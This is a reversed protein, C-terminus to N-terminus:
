RCENAVDAYYGYPRGECAFSRDAERGLVELYGDSFVYGNYVSDQLAVSAAGAASRLRVEGVVPVVEPVEEPVVPAAEPVEEAVVPAAVPIEDPLVIEEEQGAVLAALAVMAFIFKM